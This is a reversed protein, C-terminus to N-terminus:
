RDLFSEVHVATCVQTSAAMKRLGIKLPTLASVKELMNEVGGHRGSLEEARCMDVKVRDDDLGRQDMYSLGMM